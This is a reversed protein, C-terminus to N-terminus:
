TCHNSSKHCETRSHICCQLTSLLWLHDAHLCNLMVIDILEFDGVLSCVCARVLPLLSCKLFQVLSMGASATTARQSWCKAVPKTNLSTMKASGTTAPHVSCDFLHLLNDADDHHVEPSTSSLCVRLHLWGISVDQPVITHSHRKASNAASCLRMGVFCDQIATKQHVRKIHCRSPCRSSQQQARCHCSTQLSRIGHLIQSCVNNAFCLVKFM